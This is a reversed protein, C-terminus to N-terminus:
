AIEEFSFEETILKLHFNRLTTEEVTKSVRLPKFDTEKIETEQLSHFLYVTFVGDGADENM